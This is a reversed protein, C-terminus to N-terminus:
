GRRFKKLFDSGYTINVWEICTKIENFKLITVNNNLMCIYKAQAKDDDNRNWPNIMKGNEFFHDGKIEYLQGDIEFDPFYKYEKNNYIYTLCPVEKKINNKLFEKNYIWFALEWSSDFAINNYVYKIKSKNFFDEFQLAHEVGYKQIMTEKIKNKIESSQFPNKVGFHKICTKEKKIKIEELMSVNDVGYKEKIINKYKDCSFPCAVIRGYKELNTDEIKKRIIPSSVAYETGYKEICTKKIKEQIVKSQSPSEVGYKSINTKKIKEKIEDAQFVNDVGYKEKIIQKYRDQGFAYPNESGYKEKNTKKIKEKVELLQFPNEVGYKELMRQKVTCANCLKNFTIMRRITSKIYTKGCNSCTYYIAQERKYNQKIDNFKEESDIYIIEDVIKKAM